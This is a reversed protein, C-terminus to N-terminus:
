CRARRRQGDRRIRAARALPTRLLLETMGIVGNMPTRIEHSMTALFESKLRSAELAANLALSIQERAQRRESIDRSTSVLFRRGDLEASREFIEAPFTSGDKRVFAREYLTGRELQEPTFETNAASGEIMALPAGLLEGREYGLAEFAAANADVITRTAADAFLIIDRTIQTLVNVRALTANSDRLRENAEAIGRRLRILDAVFAALVATSSIVMFFKGIYWGYSYRDSSLGLLVDLASCALAVSLWLSLSTRHGLRRYIAVITLADLAVILPILGYTTVPAFHLGTVLPFLRAAYTTVFLTAGLAAALCGAIVLRLTGRVAADDRNERGYALTFAALVLLPYGAHWVLWLYLASQGGAGLLGSPAFVGPFTLIYPVAVLAALLYACGLLAIGIRRTYAFELLLIYASLLETAIVFGALLALLAPAVPGSGRGFLLCSAALLLALTVAVYAARRQGSPADLTSLRLVGSM